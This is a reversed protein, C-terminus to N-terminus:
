FGKLYPTLSGVDLLLQRTEISLTGLTQRFKSPQDLCRGIELVLDTAPDLMPVIVGGAQGSNPRVEEGSGKLRASRRNGSM